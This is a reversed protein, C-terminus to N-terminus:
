FPFKMEGNIEGMLHKIRKQIKLLAKENDAEFRVVISPTTNSARVLGWGDEFEIRLGDIDIIKANSFNAKEIFIKMFQFNEGEAMNIVIEPTNISNPFDAFIDHSDRIDASLIELLRAAAYLADDFGFWRDHFSFHGAMEGALLAGTERMKEKIFSHGTKSMVPRGGQKKIYNTLHHSCKVDYIIEALPKTAIIQKAFLMMLRDPYIINGQNDVVGLRDGDADFALGIDAKNEKVANILIKLNEPQSPDPHHNPFSGDINCYLEIIECGLKKLLAPAITGAVGNGCDIVVKLSRKVKIDECISGIYEESYVNNEEVSGLTETIYDEDEIRQKLQQIKDGALTEGNIIIKLGNYESPNHGGTVMVGTRDEMHHAVFYLLPTPIIGLDLVNCGTSTIGKILATCLNPSSLRGDRGVVVVKNDAKKAETGIALGLDYVKSKSLGKGVIGRIDYAKFINEVAPEKKVVIAPATLDSAEIKPKVKALKEKPLQQKPSTKKQLKTKDKTTEKITKKTENLNSDKKKSVSTAQHTEVEDLNFMDADDIEHTDDTATGEKNDLIRKFQVLTSIIVKMESLNVPYNGLDKGTMLDKVAQLISNQDKKLLVTIQYYCFFFGGCALLSAAIIVGLVMSTNALTHASAAWYSLQWRSKAIKLTNPNNDKITANGGKALTIKGQTIEIFSDDIPADELIAQVFDFQLSALLVGIIQDNKKIPATVAFHRNEGQGQIVSQQHTKFTKKVMELDAYGMIPKSSDDIENVDPLLIRLKLASPLFKQLKHEASEILVENKSSVASIIEIDTAIQEVTKELLLAQSSVSYALGKALAGVSEQKAEKLQSTSLWFVGSSGLIVMSIAIISVIGFIRGMGM